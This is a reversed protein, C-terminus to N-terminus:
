TDKVLIVGAQYFINSLVQFATDTTKYETCRLEINNREWNDSNESYKMASLHFTPEGDFAIFYVIPKTATTM